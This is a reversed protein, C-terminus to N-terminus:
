IGYNVECGKEMCRDYERGHDCIMVMDYDISNTLRKSYFTVRGDKARFCKTPGLVPHRGWGWGLVGEWADVWAEDKM